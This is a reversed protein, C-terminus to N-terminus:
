LLVAKHFPSRLWQGATLVTVDPNAARMKTVDANTATGPKCRRIVSLWGDGRLVQVRPEVALSSPPPPQPVPVPVPPPQPAPAPTMGIVGFPLARQVQIMREFYEPEESDDFDGWGHAAGAFGFTVVGKIWADHSAQWCYWGAQEPWTGMGAIREWPTGKYDRWGRGLGPRWGQYMAPNKGTNDIGFETVYGEVSGWGNAVLMPRIDRYRLNTWGRLTPDKWVAADTSPGTFQGGDPWQNRGDATKVFCGVYCPSYEHWHIAAMKPGVRACYDLAARAAMLKGDDIVGTSFGLLLAGFGEANLAKANDVEDQAFARITSESDGDSVGENYLVWYDVLGRNERAKDLTKNIFARRQSPRQDGWVVRGIHKTEPSAAKCRRIIDPAADNWLMINPRVEACYRVSADTAGNTTMGLGLRM